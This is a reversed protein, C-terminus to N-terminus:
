VGAEYYVYSLAPERRQPTNAVGQAFAQKSENAEISKEAIEQTEALLLWSKALVLWMWRDYSDDCRNANRICKRAEIRSRSDNSESM